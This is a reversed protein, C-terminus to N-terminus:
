TELELLSALKQFTEEIEQASHALIRLVVGAVLQSCGIEIPEEDKSEWSHHLIIEQKEIPGYYYFTGQHTFGSFFVLGKVPMQEPELLCHDMWVLRGDIRVKIKNQFKRFAFLEGMGVRGAAMCDVYAFESNKNLNVITEGIFSSNKFPIMACPRFYLSAGGEVTIEQHKRAGGSGTDFIKGYSQDTLLARSGEKCCIRYLFEDGQLLGPSAMMLYITIRKAYYNPIGIKLPSTFYCETVESSTGQQEIQLRLETIM